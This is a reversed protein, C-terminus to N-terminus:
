YEKTRIVKGDQLFEERIKRQKYYYVRIIVTEERLIEEYWSDADTYVTRMELLGRRYYEERALAGEADYFYKWEEVGIVSKRRMSVKKEDQYVYTVEVPEGSADVTVERTVNGDADYFRDTKTKASADKETEKELKGTDKNYSYEKVSVLEDKDWEEQYQAQGYENYKTDTIRGERYEWEGVLIGDGYTYHIIAVTNDPYVRRMSRLRGSPDLEYEDTYLREGKADLTDVFDIGRASYSYIKKQTLEGTTYLEETKLRGNKDFVSRATIVGDEYETEGTKEGREDFLAEWRKWEKRSRTLIRTEKTKERVVTLVYEFENRRYRDIPELAVGVWDSRYYVTEAFLAPLALFLIASLATRKM